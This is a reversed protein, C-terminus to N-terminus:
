KIIYIKCGEGKKWSKKTHSKLVFSFIIQKDVSIRKRKKKGMIRRETIKETGILPLLIM